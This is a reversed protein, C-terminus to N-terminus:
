DHSLHKNFKDEISVLNDQYKPEKYNEMLSFPIFAVFKVWNIKNDFPVRKLVERSRPHIMIYETKNRLIMGYLPDENEPYAMILRNVCTDNIQDTNTLGKGSFVYVFGGYANGSVCLYGFVPSWDKIFLIPVPVNIPQTPNLTRVHTNEIIQGLIPLDRIGDAQEKAQIQNTYAKKIKYYNDLTINQSNSARYLVNKDIGATNIITDRGHEKILKNIFDSFEKLSSPSTGMFDDIAKNIM